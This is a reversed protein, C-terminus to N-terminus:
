DLAHKEAPHLGAGAESRGAEEQLCDAGEAIQGGGADAGQKARGPLLIVYINTQGGASRDQFARFDFQQQDDAGERGHCTYRRQPVSEM